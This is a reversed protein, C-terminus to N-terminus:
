AKTETPVIWFVQVHFVDPVSAGPNRYWVYDVTEFGRERAALLVACRVDDDIQQDPYDRLEEWPFHLYWLLWHQAVSQLETEAPRCNSKVAM